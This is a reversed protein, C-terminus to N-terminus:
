HQHFAEIFREGTAFEIESESDFVKVQFPIGKYMQVHVYVEGYHDILKNVKAM